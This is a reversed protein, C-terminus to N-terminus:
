KYVMVAMKFRIRKTVRLWHLYCILADSIHESRRIILRAAANKVAQPRRIQIAPLGPADFDMM